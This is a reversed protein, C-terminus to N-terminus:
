GDFCDDPLKNLYDDHIIRLPIAVWEIWEGRDHDYHLSSLERLHWLEKDAGNDTCIPITYSDFPGGYTPLLGYEPHEIDMFFPLGTIPCKIANVALLDSLASESAATKEAAATLMGAETLEEIEITM